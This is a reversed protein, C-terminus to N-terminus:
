DYNVADVKVSYATLVGVVIAAGVVLLSMFILLGNVKLDGTAQQEEKNNALSVGPGPGANLNNITDSSSSIFERWMTSFLLGIMILMVFGLIIYNIKIFNFGLADWAKLGSPNIPKDNPIDNPGGDEYPVCDIYNVDNIKTAGNENYIINDPDLKIRNTRSPIRNLTNRNATLFHQEPHFVVIQVSDGPEGVPLSDTDTIIYNYTYFAKKAPVITYPDFKYVNNDSSAFIEDIISTGRSFKIPIIILLDDGVDRGWQSQSKHYMLVEANERRGNYKHLSKKIIHISTLYKEHLNYTVSGNPPNALSASLYLDTDGTDYLDFSVIDKYELKLSCTDNCQSSNDQVINAPQM